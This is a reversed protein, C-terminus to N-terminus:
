RRLLGIVETDKLNENELAFDLATRGHESDVCDIRAGADVLIKITEPSVTMEAAAMLASFGYKDCINVDAGAAVLTKVVEPTSFRAAFFLPTRGSDDTSNVDIQRDLFLQVVEPDTNGAARLLLEAASVPKGAIKEAEAVLLKVVASNNYQAAYLLASAGHRSVMDIRAGSALLFKVMEPNTNSMAAAMLATIGDKDSFNVDIGQRRLKRALNLGDEAAASLLWVEPFLQSRRTLKVGHRLLLEIVRASIPEKAAGNHLASHIAMSLATVNNEAVPDPAAGAKLLMAIIKENGKVGCAWILATSGKKDRANVQAGRRILAQALSENGPEVVALMLPTLGNEDKTNVKAGLKILTEAVERNKNYHIASSLATRGEADVTELSAGAAALMAVIRPDSNRAAALFMPTTGPAAKDNVGLGRQLLFSVIEPNRANAAASHLLSFGQEDTLNSSGYLELATKFMKLSKNGTAAKLVELDIKFGESVLFKLTTEDDRFVSFASMVDRQTAADLKAGADILAKIITRDCNTLIATALPTSGDEGPKNVDAGERIARTLKLLAGPQRNNIIEEINEAFAASQFSFLLAFPILKRLMLDM